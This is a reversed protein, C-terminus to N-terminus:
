LRTVCVILGESKCFSLDRKRCLSQPDKTFAIGIYKLFILEYLVFALQSIIDYRFLIDQWEVSPYRLLFTLNM